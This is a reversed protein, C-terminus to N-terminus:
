KSRSRKEAKKKGSIKPAKKAVKKVAKKVAKKASREALKKATKRVVKKASKKDVAKKRVGKKKEADAKKDLSVRYEHIKERVSELAGGTAEMVHDKGEVIVEKLHGVQDSVKALFGPDNKSTSKKSKAM